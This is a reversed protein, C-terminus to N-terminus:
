RPRRLMPVVPPASGLQIRGTREFGHREYLPINKPNTSELYAPLGDRDSRALAHRLLASGHGQNQRIPDVGILPLYWHPGDPHHRGMEEMIAGVIEQRSPPVARRIIIELAEEAPGTGPPLWLAAGAFDEALDATGHEFAEGGFGLVFEAMERFYVDPDPFAWRVMPDSGFALVIVSVASAAESTSVPRIAWNTM